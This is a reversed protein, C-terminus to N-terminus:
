SNFIINKQFLKKNDLTWYYYKEAQVTMQKRRKPSPSAFLKRISSIPDDVEIFKSSSPSGNSSSLPPGVRDICLQCFLNGDQHHIAPQHHLGHVFIDTNGYRISSMEKTM